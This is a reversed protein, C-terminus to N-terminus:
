PTRSWRGISHAINLGSETKLTTVVVEIDSNTALLEYWDDEDFVVENGKANVIINGAKVQVAEVTDRILFNLPAINVPITVDIYDPYINPHAESQSVDKPTPTCSLLLILSLLSTLIHLTKM